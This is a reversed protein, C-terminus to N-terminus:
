HSRGHKRIKEFESLILKNKPNGKIKSLLLTKLSQYTDKIAQSTTEQLGALAGAALVSIILNISDM